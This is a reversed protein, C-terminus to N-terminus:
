FRRELVSIVDTAEDSSLLHLHLYQKKIVKSTFRLLSIEDKSESKEEWLRLMYSLQKTSLSDSALMKRGKIDIKDVKVPVKKILEDAVMKLESISLEKCSSVGFRVDLWEEWADYHKISKYESCTHIKTLLSKRLFQQKPTLM